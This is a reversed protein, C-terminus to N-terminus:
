RGLLSNSKWIPATSLPHWELRPVTSIPREGVSSVPEKTVAILSQAMCLAVFHREGEDRADVQVAPRRVERVRPRHGHHCSGDRGGDEGLHVAAAGLVDGLAVHVAADHHERTAGRAHARGHMNREAGNKTGSSYMKTLVAASIAATVKAVTWPDPLHAPWGVLYISAVFPLPM